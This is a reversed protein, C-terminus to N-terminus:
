TWCLVDLYFFSYMFWANVLLVQPLLIPMHTLLADGVVSALMSICTLAEHCFAKGKGSLGNKIMVVISELYPMINGGVAVAIEGLAIFVVSRADSQNRLAGLLHNM